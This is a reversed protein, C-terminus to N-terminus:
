EIKTVMLSVSVDKPVRQKSKNYSIPNEEAANRLENIEAKMELVERKMEKSDKESQLLMKRQEEISTLLMDLKQSIVPDMPQSYSQINGIGIYCSYM